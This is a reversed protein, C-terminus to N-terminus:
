IQLSTLDLTSYLLKIGISLTLSGYNYLTSIQVILNPELDFSPIQCYQAYNLVGIKADPYEGKVAKLVNNALATVADTIMQQGETTSQSWPPDWGGGDNPFIAASNAPLMDGYFETPGRNLESEAFSIAAELVGEERPDLQWPWDSAGQGTPLFYEPHANFNAETKPLIAEYSHGFWFLESGVLRNRHMWTTSVGIDMFPLLHLERWFYDPEHVEDIAGPDALSPPVVTWVDSKFFWRVGLKEDLLYYAGERVAIPTKGTVYIGSNNSVLHFSEDTKAVLQPDAANVALRIAAGGPNSATIVTWSRGSMATLYTDLESAATALFPNNPDEQNPNYYITNIADWGAWDSASLRPASILATSVPFAILFVLFVTIIQFFLRRRYFNVM